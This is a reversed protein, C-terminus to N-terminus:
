PQVGTLRQAREARVLACVHPREVSPRTDRYRDFLAILLSLLVDHFLTDTEPVESLQQHGVVEDALVLALNSLLMGM